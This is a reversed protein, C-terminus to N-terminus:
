VPYTRGERASRLNLLAAERLTTAYGQYEHARREYLEAVAARGTARAERAMREVLVVREEMIRMALRVAEDVRETQAALEEATYAHGIPCRYRLPREGRVESLVGLCEPCTLTSPDAFRRLLNSGLPGGNAIEVEFILNEPAPASAPAETQAATEILAALNEPEAIHDVEVAEIAALPMEDVAAHMPHQVMALGGAQKIAHLGSVGDNLYGSLIVGIARPGYSLAASRFMPDISPRAMNERPGVGLRLTSDILLLHRDPAALYVHGPEIPQGDMPVGVRLGTHRQLLEPLYNPHDSALHTTVFVSGTFSDPLGGILTELVTTAGASGGIAVIDRKPM